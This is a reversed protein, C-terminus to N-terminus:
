YGENEQICRFLDFSLDRLGIPDEDVMRDLIDYVEETDMRVLEDVVLKGRYM